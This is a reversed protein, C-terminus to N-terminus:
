GDRMYLGFAPRAPKELTQCASKGHAVGIRAFFFGAVAGDGDVRGDIQGVFVGDGLESGAIEEALHRAQIEIRAGRGHPSFGIDEGVFHQAVDQVDKHLVLREASLEVLVIAAPREFVVKAAYGHEGVECGVEDFVQFFADLKHAVGGALEDRPLAFRRVAKIEHADAEYLNRFVIGAAFENERIERAAIIEALDTKEAATHPCGSARREIVDFEHADRVFIKALHDFLKGGDALAEFFDGCLAARLILLTQLHDFAHGDVLEKRLPEHFRLAEKDKVELAARAAIGAHVGARVSVVADRSQDAVAQAELM